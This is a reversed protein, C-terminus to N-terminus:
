ELYDKYYKLDKMEVKDFYKDKNFNGISDQSHYLKKDQLLWKENNFYYGWGFAVDIKVILTDVNKIKEKDIIIPGEYTMIFHIYITDIDQRTYRITGSNSAIQQKNISFSAFPLPEKGDSAVITISDSSSIGKFDFTFPPKLSNLIVTDGKMKWTGKSLTWGRLHLLDYFTFTKDNKFMVQQCMYNSIYDNCEGFLGIIKKQALCTNSFFLFALLLKAM